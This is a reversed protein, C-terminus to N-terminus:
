VLKNIVSKVVEGEHGLQTIQSANPTESRAENLLAITRTALEAATLPNPIPAILKHNLLYDYNPEEQGPLTHTILIKIGAQLAEAITLGGPKTVLVQALQYLRSPNEYFGLPVVNPLSLKQLSSLLLQNKGCMVIVSLEHNNHTLQKLYEVLLTESFGIGLSGSGFIVIHNGEPINLQIRLEDKDVVTLPKLTIGCVAINSDKVGLQILEQKQEEINVLYYNAEDYQWFKHFHYDSFAIVFKKLFKNQRILSSVAASATTQTSLIIDPNFQKVILNLNESNSKALPVRLPLGVMNVLNSFYLWRWIFPLRRNVFSHLWTGFDVMLGEQVQLIDHLLVEHNDQKLHYAINEAIFKHGLGVSTYLILIKKM